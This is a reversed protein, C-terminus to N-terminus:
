AKARRRRLYVVGLGLLAASLLSLTSPEPTTMAVQTFVFMNDNYDFDSNPMRADEFAVFVGPPVGPFVPSTATYQTSYVHQHYPSDSLDYALNMTPDSYADMGLSNDQLVFTLFDGANAFGLDLGQGVFSSHDDLGIIGTSVGNVLMGIESDNAASAGAFYATVDGNSEATFTYLTSNPTGVDPYPIVDASVNASSAFVVAVSLVVLKLGAIEHHKSRM